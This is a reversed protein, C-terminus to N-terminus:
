QKDGGGFLKNFGNRLENQVKDEFENKIKDNLKNQFKNIEGQAKENFKGVEKNVTDRAAAMATDKVLQSAFQTVARHDVVPKSVNGRIPISISKGALGALHKNSGLWSESLPIQAVMNLTQDFGVSGSTRIVIDKYNMEFDSHHVRGDKVLFPLQQPKLQLWTKNQQMSDVGPKLVNRVQDVLPLLQQVLPGAGITLNHLNLTGKASAKMPDFLPVAAGELNASVSGEASTADAILPAAYKLWTRSDDSTVQWQDLMAGESLYFVPDANRLDIVPQLSFMQNVLDNGATSNLNALSKDIRVDIQNTGLPFNYISAQDWSINAAAALQSPIWQYNEDSYLPGQIQLPQWKSGSFTIGEGAMERVTQNIADWQVKWQGQLDAQMRSALDNLSGNLKVNAAKSQLNLNTLKLNNFDNSLEIHSLLSLEPERWVESYRTQNGVLQTTANSAGSAVPQVFIMQNVKVALDGEFKDNESKFTMTGAADGDWRISDGPLSLGIWNSARDANARFGVTGDILIKRSIDLDIQDTNAAFSASSIRTKTFEIAGTSLNYKLNGRGTLKPESVNLSFGDFQFDTAGFQIQNLRIANPNATMLFNSQLNGDCFFEPFTSFNRAQAIWKAISGKATCNFQLKSTAHLDTMPQILVGKFEEAGIKTNFTASEISELQSSSVNAQSVLTIDVEKEQWANIGPYALQPNTIKVRGNIQIPVIKGAVIDALDSSTQWRVRGNAIGAVVMGGTDIVQELQKVVKQLDGQLNFDGSTWSANGNVNLFDSELRFDNLSLQGQNAAVVAVARLPKNWAVQRGNVNFNMNAADANFVLRPAGNETRATATVQLLGSNMQVGDRIRVTEPLMAAIQALDIVGDLQFSSSPLEKGGTLQSIQEIDFEGDATVRAFESEAQFQNAFIRKFNTNIKGTTTLKQASFQDNGLIEPAIVAVQSAELNSFELEASHLTANVDMRGNIFGAMNAPGIVRTLLPAFTSLPLQKSDAVLNISQGTMESQGADVIINSQLTGSSQSNPLPSQLHVAAVVPAEDGSLQIDANLNEILTPQPLTTSRLSVVGNKIQINVKPIEISSEETSSDQSMYSALIDEINSGDPRLELDITPQEISITDYNGGLMGFLTQSTAIRQISAVEKGSTDKLITGTLEIPSLWGASVNEVELSGNLDSTAWQIATQKLPTNVLIAPLFFILAAVILLFGCVLYTRSRTGKKDPAPERNRKQRSM